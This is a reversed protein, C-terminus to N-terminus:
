HQIIPTCNGDCPHIWACGCGVSSDCEPYPGGCNGGGLACGSCMTEVACDCSGASVSTTAKAHVLPAGLLGKTARAVRLWRSEGPGLPGLTTLLAQQRRDFSDHVRKCIVKMAQRAASRGGESYAEPTVIQVMDDVMERQQATLTETRLFHALHERVLASQQAPTLRKFAERRYEVPYQSLDELTSPLSDGKAIAWEHAKVAVPRTDVLALAGGAGTVILAASLVITVRKRSSLTIWM